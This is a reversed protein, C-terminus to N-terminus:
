TPVFFLNKLGGQFTNVGLDPSLFFSPRLTTGFSFFPFDHARFFILGVSFFSCFATTGAYRAIGPSAQLFLQSPFDLQPPLFSSTGSVVSFLDEDTRRLLRPLGESGGPYFGLFTTIVPPPLLGGPACRAFSGSSLSFFLPKGPRM